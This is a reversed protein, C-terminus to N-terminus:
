GYEFTGTQLAKDDDGLIEFTPPPTRSQGKQVGPVYREGGAGKLMLNLRVLRERQQVDVEAVLPPGIAVRHTEGKRVELSQLTKPPETM